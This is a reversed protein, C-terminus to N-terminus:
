HFVVSQEWIRKKEEIIVAAYPQIPWLYEVLNINECSIIDDSGSTSQHLFPTEETMTKLCKMTQLIEPEYM